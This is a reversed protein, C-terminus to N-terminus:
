KEYVFNGEDDEIIVIETDICELTGFDEENIFNETAKEKAEELSSGTVKTTYRGDIRFTVYYEKEKNTEGM